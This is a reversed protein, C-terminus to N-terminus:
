HPDLHPPPPTVQAAPGATVVFPPSTVPVLGGGLEGLVLRYAGAPGVQDFM